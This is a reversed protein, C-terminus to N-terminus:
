HAATSFVHRCSSNKLIFTNTHIHTSGKLHFYKSYTQILGAFALSVPWISFASYFPLPFLICRRSRRDVPIIIKHNFGLVIPFFSAVFIRCVSM